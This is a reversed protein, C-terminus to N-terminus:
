NWWEGTPSSVSNCPLVLTLFFDEKKEESITFQVKVSTPKSNQQNIAIVQFSPPYIFCKIELELEDREKAWLNVM